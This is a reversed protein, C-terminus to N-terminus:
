ASLFEILRAFARGRHSIADKAEATMEGFTTSHGDPIFVPDYGFGKAGRPPFVLRGDVRGEFFRPAEGPVALCLVCMFHAKGDKEGLELQIREFAEAYNKDPGTWRASYIGPAGNLGEVCLGSDDALSPLGSARMAAVAKIKANAHFTTGTEEPEPLSLEAASVASVGLPALMAGIERVKGKNHSAILLKSIKM